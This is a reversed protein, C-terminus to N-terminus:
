IENGIMNANQQKHQPLPHDLSIKANKWFGCCAMGLRSITGSSTCIISYVLHISYSVSGVYRQLFIQLIPLGIAYGCM